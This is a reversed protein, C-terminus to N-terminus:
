TVTPSCTWTTSKPVTHYCTWTKASLRMVVLVCALVEDFVGVVKIPWPKNPARLESGPKTQRLWQLTWGSHSMTCIRALWRATRCCSRESSWSQYVWEDGGGRVVVVWEGGGGGKARVQGDQGASAIVNLPLGLNQAWAADRVWDTHGPLTADLVWGSADSAKWVQLHPPCPSSLPCCLM